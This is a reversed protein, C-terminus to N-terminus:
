AAASRIAHRRSYGLWGLGAFGAIMMAWTSPEPVPSSLTTSTTVAALFPEGKPGWDSTAAFTITTLESTWFSMPLVIQQADLRVDGPFNATGFAAPADNVFGDNFHDRINDGETLNYSFSDGGSDAFTLTGTTFGAAGFASNILTYVAKIDTEDVTITYTDTPNMTQVVGTGGTGGGPFSSISFDIGHVSLSTPGQPYNTGNSYTQINANVQGSIDVQSQAAHAPGFSGTSLILGVAGSTAIKM